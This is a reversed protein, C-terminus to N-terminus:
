HAQVRVIDAARPSPLHPPATCFAVGQRSKVPAVPTWKGVFYGVKRGNGNTLKKRHEEMLTEMHKEISSVRVFTDKLREYVQKIGTNIELCVKDPKGFSSMKWEVDIRFISLHADKSTPPSGKEKGRRSSPSVNPM